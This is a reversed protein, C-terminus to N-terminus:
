VAGKGTFVKIFTLVFIKLDIFLGHKEIYELDLKIKEGHNIESRGNVQAWGTIGPKVALRKMQTQDYCNVIDVIEPRPGIFSMDGKLVNFFQPLEDLSSKRLFKGIRTISDSNSSSQKFIFDEPVGDKWQYPNDSTHNQQPKMSRFKLIFFPKNFQGARKQLFFVPFGSEVVILISLIIFLPSFLIIVMLSIVIDSIRKFLRYLLKLPKSISHTVNQKNKM